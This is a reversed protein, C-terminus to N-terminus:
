PHDHDAPTFQVRLRQPTLYDIVVPREDRRAIRELLPLCRLAPFDTRLADLPAQSMAEPADPVVATRLTGLSHGRPERGLWFAVGAADPMPRCSHLPEPYESDYAVLLLEGGDCALQGLADIWGAGFSADHACLVQSPAMSRTAIGWYGAAANHVSNHFRTPSIARDEGALQECLAHCNHGDAGSSTFVTAIDSADHGKLAGLGLALAVRVTRSARRREAAPLAEAPPLVSPAQVWAQEGRLVPAAQAWDPLGPAIVALGHLWLKDSSM